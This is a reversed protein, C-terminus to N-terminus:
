SYVDWSVWAATAALTELPKSVMVMGLLITFMAILGSIAGLKQKDTNLSKLIWLPGILATLGLALTVITIAKNITEDSQYRTTGM